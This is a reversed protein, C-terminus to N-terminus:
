WLSEGFAICALRPLMVLVEGKDDIPNHILDNGTKIIHLRRLELRRNELGDVAQVAHEVPLVDRALRKKARM